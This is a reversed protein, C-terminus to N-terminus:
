IILKAWICGHLSLLTPHVKQIHLMTIKDLCEPILLLLVIKPLGSRLILLTFLSTHTRNSPCTRRCSILTSM